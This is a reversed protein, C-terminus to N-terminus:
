LLKEIPDCIRNLLMQNFLKATCSMLSIGRYSGYQSLDGKKRLTIIRNLLFESLPECTLYTSNLIPLLVNLIAPDRLIDPPIGDTGSAKGSKLQRAAFAIEQFSFEGTPIDELTESIQQAVFSDIQNTDNNLLKEYHKCWWSIRHKPNEAKVIAASKSKRSSLNNIVKWIETPKRSEDACHQKVARRHV